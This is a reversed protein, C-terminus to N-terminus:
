YERKRERERMFTDDCRVSTMTLMQSRIQLEKTLINVVFLNLDFAYVSVLASLLIYDNQATHPAVSHTASRRHAEQAIRASQVYCESSSLVAHDDDAIM